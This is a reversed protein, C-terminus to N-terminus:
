NSEDEDGVPRYCEYRNTNWLQYPHAMSSESVRRKFKLERGDGFQHVALTKTVRDIRFGSVGFASIIRIYDGVELDTREPVRKVKIKRPEDEPTAEQENETM